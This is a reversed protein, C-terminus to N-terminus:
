LNDTQRFWNGSYDKLEEESILLKQSLPVNFLNKKYRVIGEKVLYGEPVMEIKGEELFLDDSVRINTGEIEFLNGPFALDFLSPMCEFNGGEEVIMKIIGEKFFVRSGAPVCFKNNGFLYEYSVSSFFEAEFVERRILDIKL